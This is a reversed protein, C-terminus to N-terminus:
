AVAQRKARLSPSLGSLMKQSSSSASGALMLCSVGSTSCRIKGAGLQGASRGDGKEAQPPSVNVAPWQGARAPDPRTSCGGPGRSVKLKQSALSLLRAKLTETPAQGLRQGAKCCGNNPPAHQEAMTPPEGCPTLVRTERPDREGGQHTQLSLPREPTLGAGDPNPRM